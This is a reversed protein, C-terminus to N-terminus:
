LCTTKVRGREWNSNSWKEMRVVKDNLIKRSETIYLIQPQYLM